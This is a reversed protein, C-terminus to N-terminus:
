DAVDVQGEALYLRVRTGKGPESEFEMRHSLKGLIERCLYLGIGTAKRDSRGNYGTFGRECIRPLDEAEIGIGTDEIVLVDGAECRIRIEGEPTYKLANSLIQEVAFSLWKADTLVQCDTEEYVLRIHRRIFVKAYKRIVGRLIEDLSCRQFVLDNGEGDLKLYTLAMEVYQEIKFLEAELEERGATEETQLILRAAAIPTKIQHAWMTYYAMRESYSKDRASIGSVKEEYVQRLIAQYDAELLNRSEPFPQWENKLKEKLERLREHKERFASYDRVGALFGVALCLCAAYGVPEVPAGYLFLVCVFLAAWLLFLGIERIRFKGYARLM